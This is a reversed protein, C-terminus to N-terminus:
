SELIGIVSIVLAIYFANKLVVESKAIEPTSRGVFYLLMFFVGDRFAYLQAGAPVNAHFLPDELLLFVAALCILGAISIDTSKLGTRPARNSLARLSAWGFLAVIAAEKWAALTRAVGSSIGARGFLVAITLSHFPLLWLFLFITLTAIGPIKVPRVDAPMPEATM